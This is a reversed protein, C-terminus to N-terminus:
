PESPPSGATPRMEILDGLGPLDDALAEPVLGAARLRARSAPTLGLENAFYRAQGWSDREVRVAPNISTKTRRDGNRATVVEDFCMGRARVDRGAARARCVCVVFGELASSDARDLLGMGNLDLVTTNWLARADDDLHPPGQADIGAVRLRLVPTANEADQADRPNRSRTVLGGM